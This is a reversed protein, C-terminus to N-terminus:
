KRKMLHKLVDLLQENSRKLTLALILLCVGLIGVAGGDIAFKFLEAWTQLEIMEHRWFRLFGGLLRTEDPM